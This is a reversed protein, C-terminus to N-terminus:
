KNYETLSHDYWKAFLYSYNKIINKECYKMKLLVRSGSSERFKTEIGDTVVTCGWYGCYCRQTSLPHGSGERETEGQKGFKWEWESDVNDELFGAAVGGQRKGRFVCITTGFSCCHVILASSERLLRESTQITSRNHAHASGSAGFKAPPRSLGLKTQHIQKCYRM